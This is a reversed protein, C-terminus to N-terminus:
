KTTSVEKLMREQRCKFKKVMKRNSYHNYAMFVTRLSGSSKSGIGDILVFRNNKEDWLMNGLTFNRIIVNTNEVWKLCEELPKKHHPAYKGNRIIQTLTPCLNGASDRIAKVVLGTGMDTDVIGTIEQLFASDQGTERLVLHEAIENILARHKPLRQYKTIFPHTKKEFDYFRQRWVKILLDPTDPHEYVWKEGGHAIPEIKSLYYM